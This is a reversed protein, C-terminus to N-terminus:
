YKHIKKAIVGHETRISITYSGPKLSQLSMKDMENRWEVSLVVRGIENTIEINAGSLDIGTQNDLFLVDTTPNPFVRMFDPSLQAQTGLIPIILTNAFTSGGFPNVAQVRYQYTVGQSVNVDQYALTNRPLSAIREFSAGNNSSRYIDFSSERISDDLWSLRVSKSAQEYSGRFHYPANPAKTYSVDMRVINTEPSEGYKNFAKVSYYWSLGEDLPFHFFSSRDPAIKAVQKLSSPTNGASIIFGDEDNSNDRWGLNFYRDGLNNFTESTALNSPALPPGLLTAYVFGSGSEGADNVAFVIFGYDVKPLLNTLLVSSSDRNIEIENQLRNLAYLRVINKKRTNTNFTFDEQTSNKWTLRVEKDSLVVAKLEEPRNPVVLKRTTVSIVNSLASGSINESKIRYLYTTGNMLGSDFTTTDNMQVIKSATWTVGNDLSREIVFREENTSNDKWKLVVVNLQIEVAQLNSPAVPPKPRTVIFASNSFPSPGARNISIIRFFYDINDIIGTALYRGKPTNNPPLEALIKWTRGQDLSFQIEFQNEYTDVDDWVLELEDFKSTYNVILNKPGELQPFLFLPSSAPTFGSYITDAPTNATNVIFSRVRGIYNRTPELGTIEASSVAGAPYFMKYFWSAGNDKSLQLEFGSENTSNDNWSYVLVVKGIPQTATLESPAVIQNSIKVSDSLNSYASYITDSPTKSSNVVYSRIRFRYTSDSKLGSVIAANSNAPTSGILRKFNTTSNVSIEISFGKEASSNDSWDLRIETTASQTARLSTPSNPKTYVSAGLLEFFVTPTGSGVFLKYELGKGEQLGTHTFTTDNLNTTTTLVSFSDSTGLNRFRVQYSNVTGGQKNWRLFVSNTSTDKATFTGQAQASLTISFAFLLILHLRKGM